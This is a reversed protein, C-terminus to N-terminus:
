GDLPEAGGVRSLSPLGAYRHVELGLIRRRLRRLIQIRHPPGVSLHISLVEIWNEAAVVRFLQALDEALGPWLPGLFVHPQDFLRDIENADVIVRSLDLAKVGVH